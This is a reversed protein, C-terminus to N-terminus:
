FWGELLWGAVEVEADWLEGVDGTAFEDSGDYGGRGGGGTDLFAVDDDDGGCVVAVEAFGGELM